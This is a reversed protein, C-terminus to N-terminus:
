RKSCALLVAIIANLTHKLGAARCGHQQKVNTVATISLWAQINEVTIMCGLRVMLKARASVCVAIFGNTVVFQLLGTLLWM